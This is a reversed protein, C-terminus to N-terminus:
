LPVIRIIINDIKGVPKHVVILIMSAIKYKDLGNLIKVILFSVFDTSDPIRKKVKYHRLTM